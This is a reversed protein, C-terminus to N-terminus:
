VWRNTHEAIRSRIEKVLESINRGTLFKDLSAPILDPRLKSITGDVGLDVIDEGDRSLEVGGSEDQAQDVAIRERKLLKWLDEDYNGKYSCGTPTCVGLTLCNKESM